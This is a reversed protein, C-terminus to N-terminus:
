RSDMSKLVIKWENIWNKRTRAFQDCFRNKVEQIEPKQWWEVPDYYIENVKAAASEPTYHLIGVRQLDDFYPKATDRLEWHKPNWFIITPFDAAFSELYTTSNYTSILMRSDQLQELIPKIGRYINLNPDAESWRKEQDWGYDNHYLRLLLLDHVDQSVTKAFREQEQIYNAVQPGVPVSYFFYFYRPLVMAVWLINGGPNPQVKGKLGALNGSPMPITKHNGNLSWGWTFFKNSISIEHDETTSMLGIGYHGGHQGIILKAGQNVKYAAWLKFGEDVSFANATYIIKPNKPFSDLARNNMDAYGELHVTPIQEFLLGNLLAEFQDENEHFVVKNRLAPDPQYDIDLYKPTYPNPAQGMSLLLKRLDNTQLYSAVFVTKNLIGPILFPYRKILHKILNLSCNKKVVQNNKVAETKRVVKKIQFPIKGIKKIIYSYLYHNYDDSIFSQYFRLFDNPVLDWAPTPAIWTDAIKNTNIAGIISSYRDYLIEIFFHLWEGIVIRWYKVPYSVNHIENLKESLLELYKEYKKSVYFYDEYLKDRDDWHYPLVEYDLKEWIHKRSYLKCWEGLFMVPFDNQWTSENATTILFRKM